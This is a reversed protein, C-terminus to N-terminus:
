LQEGEDYVHDDDLAYASDTEEFPELTEPLLGPQALDKDLLHLAILDRSLQWNRFEDETPVFADIFEDMSVLARQTRRQYDESARLLIRRFEAFHTARSFTIYFNRKLTQYHAFREGLQKLLAIYDPTLQMVQEMFQAIIIWRIGPAARATLLHRRLFADAYAPLTLLDDYFPQRQPADEAAAPQLLRNFARAVRADPHHLLADVWLIVSRDLQFLTIFPSAGTNSFYYGEVRGLDGQSRDNQRLWRVMQEVFRSRPFPLPEWTADKQLSYAQMTQRLAHSIADRLFARNDSYVLLLGQGSKLCATLAMQMLLSCNGCVPVGAQGQPSFNFVGRGNLLPIEERTARYLAPSGCYLCPVDLTHPQQWGYLVQAVFPERIEPNDVSYKANLLYLGRLHNRLLGPQTYADRLWDAAARLDAETLQDPTSRQSFVL